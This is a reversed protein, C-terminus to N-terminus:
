REYRALYDPLRDGFVAVLLRLPCDPHALLSRHRAPHRLRRLAYAELQRAREPTRGWDAAIARQTDPPEICYRRHLVEAARELRLRQRGGDRSSYGAMLWGLLTDRRV